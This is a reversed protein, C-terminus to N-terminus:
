PNPVLRRIVGDGKNMIFVQGDSGTGYRLDARTSPERRQERNKDQVVELLTKAEGDVNLMVRRIGAQGGNPLNDADMYFIEGSPMDGWLVLNKLQPIDNARYIILGTAASRSQLLPDQHGYEALPYTVSPDDRKNTLSVEARSIFGFSGEWTNWGLNAGATVMSIEEVINQGIDSFFMNKNAPDWAFRQPNRVGYAYIEGLTADDGDSAFPNDAPIGYAGNASNSGLPDIRMIKGFGNSLNQALSLPDGGSGGDAIGVFLLGFDSDGPAAFTNFGLQGGNHNGFPQELRILERPADGDYTKGGPTRATWELLVTDHTNGEGGAVFDPSPEMNATDTLTYFRGYGPTGAQGFQPHFAFSQMGRERGNSKVHVDWDDENINIYLTVQEGDYNVSYIPGRMDNVFLQGTEPEDVLIMVRAAQEDIDPIIAFEEFAVTIVDATAEIPDPFPDDTTQAFSSSAVLLGAIIAQEIHQSM